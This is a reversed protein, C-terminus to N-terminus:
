AKIWNLKRVIKLWTSPSRQKNAITTMLHGIMAKQTLTWTQPDQLRHSPPSAVKLVM